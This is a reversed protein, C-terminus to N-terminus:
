CPGASPGWGARRVDARGPCAASSYVSGPWLMAGSTRPAQAKFCPVSHGLVDIEAQNSVLCECCGDRKALPPVSGLVPGAGRPLLGRGRIEM